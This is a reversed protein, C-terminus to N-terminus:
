SWFSIAWIATLLYVTVPRDLELPQNADTHVHGTNVEASGKTKQSYNYSQLAYPRTRIGAPININQLHM